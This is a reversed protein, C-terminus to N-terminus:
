KPSRTLLFYFKDGSTKLIIRFKADDPKYVQYKLSDPYDFLVQGDVIDEFDARNNEYHVIKNGNLFIISRTYEQYYNAYSMGIAKNIVELNAPMDFVFMKDWTFNTLQSIVIECNLNNKCHRGQTAIRKEINESCSTLCVAMALLYLIQAQKM